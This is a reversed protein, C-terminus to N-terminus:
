VSIYAYSVAISPSLPLESTSVTPTPSQYVTERVESLDVQSHFPSTRLAGPPLSEDLSPANMRKLERVGAQRRRRLAWFVVILISILLAGATVAIGIIAGTSIAHRRVVDTFHGERLQVIEGRNLPMICM